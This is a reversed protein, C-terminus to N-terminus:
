TETRWVRRGTGQSREFESACGALIRPGRGPSLATALSLSVVLVEVGAVEEALDLPAVLREALGMGLDAQDVQPDAVDGAREGRRHDAGEVLGGVLHGPGLREPAVPGVDAVLKEAGGDGLVVERWAADLTARSSIKM